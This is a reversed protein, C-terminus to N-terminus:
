GRFVYKGNEEYVVAGIFPEGQKFLPSQYAQNLIDAVEDATQKNTAGEYSAELLYRIGSNKAELAIDRLQADVPKGALTEKGLIRTGTLKYIGETLSLELNSPTKVCERITPLEAEIQEKSARCDFFGYAKGAKEMTEIPM